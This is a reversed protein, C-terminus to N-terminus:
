ARRGQLVVARGEDKLRVTDAALQTWGRRACDKAIAEVEFFGLRMRLAVTDLMRWAGPVM